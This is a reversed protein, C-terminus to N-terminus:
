ALKETTKKVVKGNVQEATKKVMKGDSSTEISTVKGTGASDLAKIYVMHVDIVETEGIQPIKMEDLKCTIDGTFVTHNKKLYEAKFSDIATEVIQTFQATTVSKPLYKTYQQVATQCSPSLADAFSLVPSILVAACILSRVLTKKSM